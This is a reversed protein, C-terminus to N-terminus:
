HESIRVACQSSPSTCSTSLLQALWWEKLHGAGGDVKVVWCEVSVVNRQRDRSDCFQDFVIMCDPGPRSKAMFM